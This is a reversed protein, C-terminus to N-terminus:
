RTLPSCPKMSFALRAPPIPMRGPSFPNWTSPPGWAAGSVYLTEARDYTVETAAAVPEEVVPEEVPAEAVPEEVAPTEVAPACAALLMGLVVLISLITITRKM